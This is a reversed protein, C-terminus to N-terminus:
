RRTIRKKGKETRRIKAERQESEAGSSGAVNTGSGSIEQNTALGVDMPLSAKIEWNAGNQSEIRFFYRGTQLVPFGDMGITLHAKDNPGFETSGQVLVKESKDPNVVVLRFVAKDEEDGDRLWLTEIALAPVASPLQRATIGEMCSLHSVLNTKQDISVRECLVSWIHEM